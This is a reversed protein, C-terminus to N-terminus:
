LLLSQFLQLFHFQFFHQFILPISFYIILSDKKKFNLIIVIALMLLISASTGISGGLLPNLRLIALNKCPFVTQFIDNSCGLFYRFVNGQLIIILDFYNLLAIFAILGYAIICIRFAEKPLQNNNLSVAIFFILFILPLAYQRIIAPM